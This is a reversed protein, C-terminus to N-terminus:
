CAVWKAKITRMGASMFNGSKDGPNLFIAFALVNITNAGKLSGERSELTCHGLIAEHFSSPKGKKIWPSSQVLEHPNKKKKKIIYFKLSHGIRQKKKKKKRIETHPSCELQNRIQRNFNEPGEMNRTEEWTSASAHSNEHGQHKMRLGPSFGSRKLAGFAVVKILTWCQPRAPMTSDPDKGGESVRSIVFWGM